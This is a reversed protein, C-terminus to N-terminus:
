ERPSETAAAEFRVLRQFDITASNGYTAAWTGVSRGLAPVQGAWLLERNIRVVIQDHDGDPFLNVWIENATQGTAVHPWPQWPLRVATQTGSANREWISAYGLPSVAVILAQDPDGVVLGFASDLEGGAHAAVLQWTQAARGAGDPTEQRWDLRDSGAALEVQNVTFATASDGVPRPDFVAAIILSFFALAGLALAVAFTWAWRPLSQAQQGSPEIM